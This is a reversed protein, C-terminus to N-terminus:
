KRDCGGHRRDHKGARRDKGQDLQALQDDTLVESLQERMESRTLKPAGAQAEYLAQLQETQEESLDLRESMRTLRHGAREAARAKRAERQEETLVADIEAQLAQRAQVRGEQNAELIAEIKMQQESTLDLREAMAEARQAPDKAGHPAAIALGGALLAATSAMLLTTKKM